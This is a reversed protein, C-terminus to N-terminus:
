GSVHSPLSLSQSPMMSLPKSPAVSVQPVPAQAFLTGAHRLPTGPVQVGSEGGEQAESPKLQPMTGSPQPLMISQPVQVAGCLQAPEPWAFTQPQVASDSLANQMRSDAVQPLRLAVSLQPADRVAVQPVHMGGLVQPPPPTGLVQPQMGCLSAAMQEPRPFVHPMTPTVSLQPMARVTFQPVHVAGCVHPPPPVAFTQPQVCSLSAWSQAWSLLFQPVTAVVSLQPTDRLREHPVHVEGFVQPPAEGQM